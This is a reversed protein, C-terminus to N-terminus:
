QSTNFWIGVGTLSGKLGRPSRAGVTGAALCSSHWEFVVVGFRELSGCESPFRIEWNLLFTPTHSFSSSALNHHTYNISFFSARIGIEQRFM